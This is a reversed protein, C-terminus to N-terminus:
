VFLLNKKLTQIVRCPGSLYNKLVKKASVKYTKSLLLGDFHLNKLSEVAQM